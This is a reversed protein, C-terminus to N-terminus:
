QELERAVGAADKSSTSFREKNKQMLRATPSLGTDREVEEPQSLPINENSCPLRKIKEKTEELLNVSLLHIGKFM